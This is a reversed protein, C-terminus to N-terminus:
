GHARLVEFVEKFSGNYLALDLFPLVKASPHYGIAVGAEEFMGLDGEGDGVAASEEKRLGSESLIKKVWHGKHRPGSSTGCHTDAVAACSAGDGAGGPGGRVPRGTDHAVNIRIDGTLVGNEVVLENAVALTMGLERKVREVLFSLGTSLLVTLVGENRLTRMTERVGDHYPIEEIIELVRKETMGKWLLADRRCFELYDIEGARFLRQFEDANRDWMGLREHIYQWSSKVTTLTGDCDFFVIRLAMSDKYCTTMLFDINTVPKFGTTMLFDINGRISAKYYCIHLHQIAM